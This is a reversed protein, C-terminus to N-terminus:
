HVQHPEATFLPAPRVAAWRRLRPAKWSAAPSRSPRAGARSSRRTFPSADMTNGDWKLHPMTLGKGFPNARM